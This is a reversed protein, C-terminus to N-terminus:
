QFLTGHLAFLVRKNKILGEIKNLHEDPYSVANQFSGLSYEHKEITM